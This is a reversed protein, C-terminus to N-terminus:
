TFGGSGCGGGSSVTSGSAGGGVSFGSLQKRAGEHGCRPCKVNEGTENSPVLEEFKHDCSTCQFDFLRM